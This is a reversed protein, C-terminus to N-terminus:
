LSKQAEEILVEDSAFLMKKADANASQLRIFAFLFVFVDNFMEGTYEFFHAAREGSMEFEIVEGYVLLKLGAMVVGLLVLGAELNRYKYLLSSSNKNGFIFAFSTATVFLQVGYEIWHAPVEWFQANLLFLLFALFTGGVNVIIILIGRWDSVYGCYIM